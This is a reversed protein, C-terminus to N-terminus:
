FHGLFFVLEHIDLVLLFCLVSTKYCRYLEGAFSRHVFQTWDFRNKQSHPSAVFTHLSILATKINFQPLYCFGFFEDIFEEPKIEETTITEAQQATENDSSALVVVTSISLLQAMVIVLAVLRFFSFKSFKM